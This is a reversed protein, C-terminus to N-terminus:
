KLLASWLEDKIQMLKSHLPSETVTGINIGIFFYLNKDPFFYLECGAGIGGGSHGIAERGDFSVHTLGLGYIPKGNKDNVWQEMEKLSASSLLKGEILGKLFKIADAPTSVIGDDGILTSVNTRQMLSVNELISNSYRDWYSNPLKTYKLYGPDNRYFTNTLQLPEFINEAIFKSHDGTLSDAILALLMYNTNTYIHKSGPRFQLKKGKIPKLMEEISFFYNPHQFLYSVYQPQFNYEPLGSTHNLLMRITVSDIEPLYQQYRIPLYKKMSADLDIKKQEHLKLIAVAMYTKSVSQLYHLNCTQMPTKDEIKSFGSAYEWWGEDSYVALSAGPVGNQTLADMISKLQAAKSFSGASNHGEECTSISTAQIASSCAIMILM